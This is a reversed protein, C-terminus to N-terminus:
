IPQMTNRLERPLGNFAAQQREAQCCWGASARGHKKKSATTQDWILGDGDASLAAAAASSLRKGRQGVMECFRPHGRLPNRGLVLFGM